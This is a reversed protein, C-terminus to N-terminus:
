ISDSSENRTGQEKSTTQEPVYSVTVTAQKVPKPYFPKFFKHNDIIAVLKYQKAWQPYEWGNQQMLAPALYHTSGKTPDKIKGTLVEEAVKLAVQWSKEDIVNKQKPVVDLSMAAKRLSPNDNFVSYQMPALVVECITKNKARNKATWAVAAMGRQSEGRAEGYIMTALCKREKPDFAPAEKPAPTTSMLAYCLRHEGSALTAPLAAAFLILATRM